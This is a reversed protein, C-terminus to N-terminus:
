TSCWATPLRRTSSTTRSSYTGAVGLAIGTIAFFGHGAKVELIVLAAPHDPDPHRRRVGASSGARGPIRARHLHGGRRELLSDPPFSRPSRLSGSSSSSAMSTPDSLLQPVTRVFTSIRLQRTPCGSRRSSARTPISWAPSSGSPHQKVAQLGHQEGGHRRGSERQVREEPSPDFPGRRSIQVHQIQSPDGGIIYPHRRGM